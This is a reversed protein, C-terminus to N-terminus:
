GGSWQYGTTRQGSWKVYCTSSFVGGSKKDVCGNRVWHELMSEAIGKDTNFHGAVEGLSVRNRERLFGRLDTLTM